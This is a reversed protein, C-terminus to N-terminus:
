SKAADSAAAALMKRVTQALAVPRFPKSMFVLEPEGLDAPVDEREYGSLLLVPLPGIAARLRTALEIGSMGPMTVDSILLSLRGHFREAVQVAEFGSAAVLVEYGCAELVTSILERLTEDDEAM